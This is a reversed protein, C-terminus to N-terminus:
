EPFFFLPSPSFTLRAACNEVLSLFVTSITTKYFFTLMRDKLFTFIIYLLFYFNPLSSQFTGENITLACSILPFKTMLKLWKTNEQGLNETKSLDKLFLHIMLKSVALTQIQTYIYVHYLNLTIEVGDWWIKGMM